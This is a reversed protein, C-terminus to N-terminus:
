KSEALMQLLREAEEICIPSVSSQAMWSILTGLVTEIRDTRGASTANGRQREATSGTRAVRPVSRAVRAAKKKTRKRSGDGLGARAPDTM